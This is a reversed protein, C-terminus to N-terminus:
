EGTVEMYTCLESAKNAGVQFFELHVFWLAEDVRVGHTTGFVLNGM